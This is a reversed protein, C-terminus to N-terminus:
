MKREEEPEENTPIPALSTADESTRFQSLWSTRDNQMRTDCILRAVEVESPETSTAAAEVRCDADKKRIWAKQAPALRSRVDTTLSRWLAAITQIALQNDTKAASVSASRQEDVAEHEAASAAVQANTADRQQQEIDYKLLGSALLEGAFEFVNNGSETEAFVKSGDDTPQVNFQIPVSFSDASREIDGKDALDSVSSLGAIQRAQDADDILGAPFRIKLTAECFRKTSNPDERATRVDELMISLQAIAARVKSKSINQGSDSRTRNLTDREIQEKVIKIVPEGASTASCEVPQKQCAGLVLAAGLFLFRIHM